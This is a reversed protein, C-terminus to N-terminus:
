DPVDPSREGHYNPGTRKLWCHEPYVSQLKENEKDLTEYPFHVKAKLLCKCAACGKLAYDYDTHLDRVVESVIKQCGLCGEIQVNMHCRSCILARRNSEAKDVVAMGQELWNRFTTLGRYVDAWGLVADPRVRNPDDYKCWGPELMQCLQEEMDAELNEPKTLGNVDYHRHAQEVWTRYDWAHSVWGDLPCVWRYGGPPCPGRLPNLLALRNGQPITNADPM